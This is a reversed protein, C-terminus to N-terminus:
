AGSDSLGLVFVYNDGRGEADVETGVRTAGLKEVARQSRLNQSHVKFVANHAFHAAHFLMLRKLETNYVGGWHSRALFTSGIEIQSRSPDYGVFRSSGIVKSDHRDIVAVAGGAALAEDFWHRFVTEDTRDKSPHQEWVLPDAAIGYLASCDQEQLPRLEVLEGRLTPQRDITVDEGRM